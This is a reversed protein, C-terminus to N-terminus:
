HGVAAGANIRLPVPGSIKVSTNAIRSIVDQAGLTPYSARVLGAEGSVLATAMSTGSWSAYTGGPVTSWLSVGPAAVRVWSGYDSFPALSDTSTSAGVSIVRSGGEAAPFQPINSAANGAAAVVVVGRGNSALNGIVENTVHTHTRTSLSLNIIDAGNNAAWVIGKALRWVDGVGNPDLVRVPMIRADPAALVVLGTVFTGHGYARSVGIAGVESPDTDNDVFDYGSVLHATLAPHTADVGTDLVAITVGAGRTVNFAQPLRIVSPAWQGQYAAASGGSAWSSDGQDEATSGIVNPEAYAVRADLALAAARVDPATGDVIRMLYLPAVSLQDLPAPDLRYQAAVAPLDAANQLKLIVQSSAVPDPTGLDGSAGAGAITLSSLLAILSLTALARQWPQQTAM